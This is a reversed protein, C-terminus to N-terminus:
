NPIKSVVYRVFSDVDSQAEKWERERQKDDDLMMKGEEDECSSLFVAAAVSRIGVVKGLEVSAKGPLILIPINLLRAYLSIHALITAPRVDRALLILSPKVTPASPKSGSPQGEQGEKQHQFARELM